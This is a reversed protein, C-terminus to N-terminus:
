YLTDGEFRHLLHFFWDFRPAIDRLIRHFVVSCNARMTVVRETYWFSMAMQLWWSFVM